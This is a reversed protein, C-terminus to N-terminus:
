QRKVANMDGGFVEGRYDEAIVKVVGVDRNKLNEEDIVGIVERCKEFNGSLYYVDLLCAYLDVKKRIYPIVGRYEEKGCMRIGEKLKEAAEEYRGFEYLMNSWPRVISSIIRLDTHSTARSVKEADAMVRMMSEYDEDMYTHYWGKVVDYDLRTLSTEVSPLLSERVTFGGATYPKVADFLKLMEKHRGPYAIILLHAKTLLASIYYFRAGGAKEKKLCRIARDVAKLRRRVDAAHRGRYYDGAIVYDYYDALALYYRGSIYRSGYKGAAKELNKLESYAMELKGQEGYVRIVRCYLELLGEGGEPINGYESEEHLLKGAHELIYEERDLPMHMLTEYLLVYYEKRQKLVVEKGSNDLVSEAIRLWDLLNRYCMGMGYQRERRIDTGPWQGENGGSGKGEAAEIQGSISDALVAFARGCKETWEWQRIVEHVVPHVSLIGGEAQVWGARALGNLVDKVTGKKAELWDPANMADPVIMDSFANIEVGSFPFLSLVKLIVREGDEMHGAAFLMSIIDSVKEYFLMQDKVYDVREPAINGFGREKLLQAAESVSIHSCEIQRAILQLALTHGSVRDIIDELCDREEEDIERRAYREFMTCLDERAGIAGLRLTEYGTEPKDERTVAIVKWGIDLVTRFDEDPEGEFNDAVLLMRKGAALDRLIKGKRTFYDSESEEKRRDVIHIRLQGDDTIMKRVSGNYYLYLVADFRSRNDAIYKKVLSSKGIGGMGTLFLCNTEGRNMWADLDELEAERGVLVPPCNVQSSILFPVVTDAYKEIEELKGIVQEMDPYRDAYYSALSRHFFEPLAQFLRDQYHQGAFRSSGFPYEADAECDPAGPVREFLLYFLLAGVGYVDTHKGLRGFRGEQQELAAYGASCAVRYKGVSGGKRIESLPVITDFDFLQVVEKIGELVFINEPKVDLYLYGKDHLKRVACAAAKALSICDKVSDAMEFSLVEGGVYTSVTYLTNNAEHLNLTNSIFNTLGGTYFLEKSVIYSQRMRRQYEQFDPVDREEAILAGAGDRNLNVYFPYCERIRVLNRCGANDEYSANYVIVSGGRGIEEQITYTVTSNDHNYFRLSAGEKLAIRTDRIGM